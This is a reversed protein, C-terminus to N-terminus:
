QKYYQMYKAVYALTGESRHENDHCYYEWNVTGYITNLFYSKYVIVNIIIMIVKYADM